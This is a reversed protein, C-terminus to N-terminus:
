HLHFVCLVPTEQGIGQLIACKEISIFYTFQGKSDLCYKVEQRTGGGKKKFSIWISSSINALEM